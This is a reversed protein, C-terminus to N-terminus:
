TEDMNEEGYNEEELEDTSKEKSTSNDGAEGVAKKDEEMKETLFKNIDEQLRRTSTRLESLYKTKGTTDASGNSDVQPTPITHVFDKHGSPSDYTASLSAKQSGTIDPM